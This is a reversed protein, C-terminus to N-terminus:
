DLSWLLPLRVQFECSAQLTYNSNTQHARERLLALNKASHIQLEEYAQSDHLTKFVAVHEFSLIM